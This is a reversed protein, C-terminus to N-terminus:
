TIDHHLIVIKKIVKWVLMIHASSHYSILSFYTINTSGNQLLKQSLKKDWVEM